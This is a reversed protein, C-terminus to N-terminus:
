FGIKGTILLITFISVFVIIGMAVMGAGETLAGIQRTDAAPDRPITFVAYACGVLFGGFHAFNDIFRYGVLGIAAIFAVNVLMNRLFDPPLQQKRLYGYIALYGILGMIGGSAGATVGVPKFVTSFLGGGIIALVFIIAMRAKDSVVEILGGFGFFAQSNFYIHLIGVHLVGGTLLRWYEGKSFVDPKVLGGATLSAMTGDGEAGAFSQAIFVAILCALIIYAYVHSIGEAKQFFDITAPTAILDELKLRRAEYLGWVGAGTFFLGILFFINRSLLSFFGQDAGGFEELLMPSNLIYVALALSLAVVISGAGVSWWARRRMQQKREELFEEPTMGRPQEEDNIEPDM